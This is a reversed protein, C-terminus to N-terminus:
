GMKRFYEIYAAIANQFGWFALFAQLNFKKYSGDDFVLVLFFRSGRGSGIQLLATERIENWRFWDEGITIGEFNLYFHYVKKTNVFGDYFLFVMLAILPLVILKSYPVVVNPQVLFGIIWFGMFGFIVLLWAKRVWSPHFEKETTGAAVSYMESQATLATSQIFTYSLVGKFPRKTKEELRIKELDVTGNM